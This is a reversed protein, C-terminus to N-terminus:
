SPGEQAGGDHRLYIECASVRGFRQWVMDVRFRPDHDKIAYFDCLEDVVHKFSEQLNGFRDLKRQAVRCLDVVIPLSPMVAERSRAALLAARTAARHERNRRQRATWHDRANSLTVLHIPVSVLLGSTEPGVLGWDIM